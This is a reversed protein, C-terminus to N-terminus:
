GSSERVLHIFYEPKIIKIGQYSGIDLLDLDRTVLYDAQIAIACGLIKNDEPDREIIHIEPISEAFYSILRLSQIFEMAEETTYNYKRRIREEELLIRSVEDLIPESIYLCFRDSQASRFLELSLGGESLLLGLFASVLVTTDFVAKIM